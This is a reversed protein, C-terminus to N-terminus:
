VSFQRFYSTKSQQCLRTDLTTHRSLFSIKLVFIIFVLLKRVLTTKFQSQGFLENGWGSSCHVGGAQEDFVRSLVLFDQQSYLMM